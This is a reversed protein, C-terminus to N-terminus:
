DTHLTTSVARLIIRIKLPLHLLGGYVGSRSSWFTITQVICTCHKYLYGEPWYIM